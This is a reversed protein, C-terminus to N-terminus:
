PKVPTTHPLNAALVHFHRQSAWAQRNGIVYLRRKARSVAVNLLNPKSAAWTRAGPRNPDGGLVLVVIDAQKGQATHVTGAVLGRHRRSRGSIQRAIDRFPGIVMVASMDFNLEALASLIRDLQRGEDPIWHGQSEAGVVDIWKSPPLTPYAADFRKGPDKGTGDIMLGDYAITNVIDLMPQDCRRHVTLPVGVWTRGDDDPLWTGLQTLRDALRQVSTHSTSWQEDVGLENRITQEARFPLTTIPELQLPDGVVVARKARWLAGVANQPTAQGAEDVLLWGLSERGLHGFLRAYSAFTTSVVPVVFFLSQWAALAAGEPLESPVDGNIVDMAAQLNRRMEMPTHQLFTKHLKLAALFLESSALNWEKDTWLAALERRERDHWWAADPYHRGLAAAARDLLGDVSVLEAERASLTHEGQALARAATSVEQEARASEQQAAVLPEPTPQPPPAQTHTRYIADVEHQAVDVKQQAARMEHQAVHVENVLLRDQHSWRRGAAGFTSLRKWLGPRSQRHQAHAQWRRNLEAQWSQAVREANARHERAIREANDRREQAIRAAEAQRAKAISEAEAQLEREVCLAAEHREQALEARAGATFVSRRLDALESSIRARRETAQYVESREARATAVRAEAARFAAIAASWPQEPTAMEYRKLVSLLGRWTQDDAPGSPAHYWFTDVFRSRNKKNGLRAAVLAWAQASTSQEASQEAQSDPEPALLATAIEPFYDVAAAQARWSEDIADAAPVEDTVNQVAGNNTSAVVMEFGTFDPQWTSVVRTRQGTSWRLQQGDFAKKPDALAALRQAREVVLAAILDRLMTTKGTGPPGNVGLVGPDTMGMATSVALQQNLALAHEPHSPWRGAPVAGPATAALVVDVRTRVDVRGAAPIEAAPSLYQRLAVGIDGEAARKAVRDLDGVIFSNLFEHSGANDATRKAVIQSRIRIETCSLETAIGTSAVAVALCRSLNTGNLVPPIQARQSSVDDQPVALDDAVLDRLAEGFETRAQEFEALWDRRNRGERLVQGTAWACSSLVESDILARGDEGVVFAAVASEGAPREDFSDQDPTFVRSLVEYVKDLRYIGLYVIHRWAQKSGLRRRALEHDPEWPLPEGPQVAFVQRERSVREITQPSFM